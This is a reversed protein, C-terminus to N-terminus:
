DPEHYIPPGFDKFNFNIYAREGSYDMVRLDDSEHLNRLVTNYHVGYREKVLEVPLEHAIFKNIGKAHLRHLLEPEEISDYSTLIVLPGSAGFIIYAKM